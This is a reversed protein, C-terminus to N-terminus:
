DEPQSCPPTALHRNTELNNLQAQTRVLLSELTEGPEPEAVALVM